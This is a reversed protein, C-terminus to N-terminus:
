GISLRSGAHCGSSKVSRGRTGSRVQRRQDPLGRAEPDPVQAVDVGALRQLHQAVVRHARERGVVVAAGGVEEVGEPERLAAPRHEELDERVREEVGFLPVRRGLEERHAVEVEGAVGLAQAHVHGPVVVGRREPLREGAQEVLMARRHRRPGARGDDDVAGAAPRHPDCPPGVRVARWRTTAVSTGPVRDSSPADGPNAVVAGRSAAWTM